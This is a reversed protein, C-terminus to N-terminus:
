VEFRSRVAELQRALRKDRRALRQVRLSVKGVAAPSVDFLAGVERNKLSTRAHLLHMAVDRAANQGRDKQRGSSTRPAHRCKQNRQLVGSQSFITDYSRSLARGSAGFDVFLPVEVGARVFDRYRASVNEAKGVEGLVEDYAV